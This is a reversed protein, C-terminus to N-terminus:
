NWVQWCIHVNLCQNCVYINPKKKRFDTHVGYDEKYGSTSRITWIEDLLRVLDVLPVGTGFCIILKLKKFRAREGSKSQANCCKISQQINNNKTEIKWSIEKSCM